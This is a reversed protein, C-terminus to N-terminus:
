LGKTANRGLAEEAEIRRRHEDEYEGTIFQVAATLQQNEVQLREVEGRLRLVEERHLASFDLTVAPSAYEGPQTAPPLSVTDPTANDRMALSPPEPQSM